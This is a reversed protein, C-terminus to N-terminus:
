ESDLSIVVFQQNIMNVVYLMSNDNALIIGGCDIVSMENLIPLDVIDVDSLNQIDKNVFSLKDSAWLFM